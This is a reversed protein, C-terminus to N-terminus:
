KIDDDAPEDSKKDDKKEPVEGKLYQTAIQFSYTSRQKMGALMYSLDRVVEQRTVLEGNVHVEVPRDLDVIEDNLLLMFGNFGQGSLRIANAKEDIIAQCDVSAGEMLELGNLTLWSCRKFLARNTVFRIKKPYSVASKATLFELIDANYEKLPENAQECMIKRNVVALKPKKEVYLTEALKEAVAMKVIDDWLPATSPQDMTGAERYLFMTPIQAIGPLLALSRPQAQRAVVGAIGSTAGYLAALDLAMEGGRGVGEVYYREPDCNFRKRIEAIPRMIALAHIRGFWEEMSVQTVRRGKVKGKITKLGLTPAVLIVKDAIAQDAKTDAWVKKLYREGNKCGEDHLCLVVPWRKKVDYDKPLRYAYEFLMLEGSKEFQITEVKIRGRGSPKKFKGKLLRDQINRDFIARWSASDGLLSGVKNAKEYAAIEKKLTEMSRYVKMRQKAKLTSLKVFPMADDFFKQFKKKTAEDMVAKPPSEKDQVAVPAEGQPIAAVSFVALQLWALGFWICSRILTM